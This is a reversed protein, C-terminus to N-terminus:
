LFKVSNCIEKLAGLNNCAMALSSMMTKRRKKETTEFSPSGFRANIRVSKIQSIPTSMALKSATAGM